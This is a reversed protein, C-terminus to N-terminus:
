AKYIVEICVDSLATADLSVSIESGSISPAALLAVSQGTARNVIQVKHCKEVSEKVDIVVQAATITSSDIPVLAPAESTEAVLDAVLALSRAELQKSQVQSDKSIVM